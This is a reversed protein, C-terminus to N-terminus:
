VFKNAKLKRISIFQGWVVTIVNLGAMLWMAFYMLEIKPIWLVVIFCVAFIYDMIKGFKYQNEGEEKDVFWFVIPLFMYVLYYPQATGPILLSFACFLALSTYTKQALIMCTLFLAIFFLNVAWYLIPKGIIGSVVSYYKITGYSHMIGSHQFMGDYFTHFSYNKNILLPVFLIVVGYIILRKAEKYRKERIYELGLAAPLIKLGAAVAILVLGIEKKINNDSKSLGMAILMIIMTLFVMNGTMIATSYCPYSMILILSLLLVIEKKLECCIMNIAYAFLMLEIVLYLIYTMISIMSDAINLDSAAGIIAHFFHLIISALAPYILEDPNIVPGIFDTFKALSEDGGYGYLISNYFEGGSVALWFLFFLFGM